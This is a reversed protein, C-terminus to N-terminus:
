AKLNPILFGRMDPFSDKLDWALQDIGWASLRPDTPAAPARPM